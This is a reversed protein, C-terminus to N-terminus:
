KCYEEVAFQKEEVQGQAVVRITWNQGYVPQQSLPYELSVAGSLHFVILVFKM